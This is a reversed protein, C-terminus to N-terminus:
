VTERLFYPFATVLIALQVAIGILQLAATILTFTLPAYQILLTTAFVTEVLHEVVMLPVEVAILAILLKFGQGATRKWATKLPMPADLAIGIWGPSLRVVLAAWILLSALLAAMVGPMGFGALVLMLIVAVFGSGISTALFLLFFRFHRGSLALGIGPAAEMGLTLQRLWNVSFVALTAAYAIALLAILPMAGGDEPMQNPQAKAMAELMVQQLPVLIGLLAALPVIALRLFHDRAEWSRRLGARLLPGLLIERKPEAIM